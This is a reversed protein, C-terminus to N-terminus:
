PREGPRGRLFNELNLQLHGLAANDCRNNSVLQSGAVALAAADVARQVLAGPKVQGTVMAGLDKMVGLGQENSRARWAELLSREAYLGSPVQRYRSCNPLPGERVGWSTPPAVVCETNMLEAPERLQARCQRAFTRMYGDVLEGVENSGPRLGVRDFRGEFLATLVSGGLGEPLKLDQLRYRDLKGLRRDEADQRERLQAQRQTLPTKFAAYLSTSQAVRPGFLGALEDERAPLDAADTRALDAQWAPLVASLVRQRAAELAALAEFVTANPPYPGFDARFDTEWAVLARAGQRTPPTDALLAQRARAETGLCDAMLAEVRLQLAGAQDPPLGAQWIGLETKAQSKLTGATALNRPLAELRALWAQALAPAVESRRRALHTRLRQQDDAALRTLAQVEAGQPNLRSFDAMTAVAQQAAAALNNARQYQERVQRVFATIVPASYPGPFQNFAQSLVASHPLLRRTMAMDAPAAKPAFIALPGIAAPKPVHQLCNNLPGSYWAQRWVGEGEDYTRGFVAQMHEDRFADLPRTAFAELWEAVVTCTERPHAALGRLPSSPQLLGPPQASAASVGPADAGWGVAPGLLGLGTLVAWGVYRVARRVARPRPAPLRPTKQLLTMCM